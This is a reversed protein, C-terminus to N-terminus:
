TVTSFINRANKDTHTNTYMLMHKLTHAHEWQKTRRPRQKEPYPSLPFLPLESGRLLPLCVGACVYCNTAKFLFAFIQQCHRFCYWQLMTLIRHLFFCQIATTKKNKNTTQSHVCSEYNSLVTYLPHSANKWFLRSLLLDMKLSAFMWQRAKRWHFATPM